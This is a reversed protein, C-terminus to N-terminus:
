AAPKDAKGAAAAADARQGAKAVAAKEEVVVAAPIRATPQDKTKEADRRDLLEQPAIGLLELDSESVVDGCAVLDVLAASVFLIRLAM